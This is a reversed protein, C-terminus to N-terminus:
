THELERLLLALAEAIRDEQECLGAAKQLTQVEDPAMTLLARYLEIARGREGRESLADAAQRRMALATAGDIPLRASDGLVHIAQDSQGTRLYHDVLQEVAWVAADAPQQEGVASEARTWMRGAKALLREIIRQVDAAEHDHDLALQAAERLADLSREDGEDIRLLTAVLEPGSEPRQLDALMRLAELDREDHTVARQAAQLAADADDCGDRYWVAIAMELGQALRARLPPPGDGETAGTAEAVAAKLGDALAGYGLAQAAHEELMALLEPEVRDRARVGAVAARAAIEWQGTKSACRAVAELAEIDETAHESAAQYAGLAAAPDDLKQEHVSAAAKHLAASREPVDGVALAAEALGAAALHWSETAEGLRMVESEVVLNAPELPLARVLAELAAAPDAGREEHMAAAEALVRAKAAADETAALRQETLDLVRQWDDTARYAVVLSGTAAAACGPEGVLAELGVRAAENREDVGLAQAYWAAAREPEGLEGRHIDAVRALLAAIRARDHSAAGGLLESLEAWRTTGSLLQDLATLTQEDDGFESRILLWTEIAAEPQDLEARQIEAIRVLDNRRQEPLLPADARRRLAEVLEASRQNRELVTVVASLAELDREDSDLVPQWNALARDADGLKEALRAAECLVSRRVARSPELEALRELVALRQEDQGSAALLESLQHAAALAVVDDAAESALVRSYLEIAGTPDDLETRRLDAAELVIAMRQEEDDCTEASGLLATARLDHRGSRRALQRLQRRADADLPDGELLAAYHGIAEADRGLIALRNGCERHLAPREDPEVLEIARELVRVVDERREAVLYNRRLLALAERRAEPSTADAELVRELEGCAAPHGPSESLLTRLEDLARGPDGLRDLWCTAMRVRTERARSASLEGLRHRWLDVLDRYRGQRDLLRELAAALQDDGPEQELLQQMYGAARDPQDAFDKAVRVADDLLQRRKAPETTTALTRDYLDLLEDWQEAATWMVTLQEFAWSAEPDLEIIRGLLTTTTEQTDGFWEQHFQVAREALERRVEKPLARELTDRYLEAVEDPRQLEDALEELHLWADQSEPASAAARLAAQFSQEVGSPDGREASSKDKSKQSKADSKKAM